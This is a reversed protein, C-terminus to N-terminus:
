MSFLGVDQAAKAFCSACLKRMGVKEADEGYRSSGFEIMCVHHLENMCTSINCKESLKKYLFHGETHCSDYSCKHHPSKMTPAILINPTANTTPTDTPIDNVKSQSGKPTSSNITSVPDQMTSINDSFAPPLKLSTSSEFKEKNNELNLKIKQLLEPKKCKDPDEMIGFVSFLIASLEPKFLKTFDCNRKKLKSIAGPIEGIINFKKKDDKLSKLLKQRESIEEYCAALRCDERARRLNEDSTLVSCHGVMNGIVNLKRTTLKRNSSQVADCFILSRRLDQEALNLIKEQDM